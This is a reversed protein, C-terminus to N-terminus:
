GAEDDGAQVPDVRGHNSLRLAAVKRGEYGGQRHGRDARAGVVATSLLLEPM